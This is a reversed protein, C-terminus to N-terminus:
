LFRITQNIFTKLDNYFDDYKLIIIESKKFKNISIYKKNRIKKLVKKSILFIDKIM